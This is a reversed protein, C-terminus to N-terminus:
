RVSADTTSASDDTLLSEDVDLLADINAFIFIGPLVRTFLEVYSVMLTSGFEDFVGLVAPVLLGSFILMTVGFVTLNRLKWYLLRRDDSRNQAERWVPGLLLWCLLFFFSLSLLFIIIAWPFPLLQSIAIGVVLGEVCGIGVLLQRRSASAIHLTLWIVIPYSIGYEVFSILRVEIPNGDADEFLAVSGFEIYATFSSITVLGMILIIPWCFRRVQKPFRRMWVAFGVASLGYVVMFLFNIMQSDLTTM